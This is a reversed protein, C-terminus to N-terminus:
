YVQLLSGNIHLNATINLIVGNKNQKMTQVFVQKSVNFTGFLDIEQVRKKIKTKWSIHKYARKNPCSIRLKANWFAFFFCFMYRRFANESLDEALCLFNGAAGNILIDIRPFTQLIQSVTQKVADSKSVDM